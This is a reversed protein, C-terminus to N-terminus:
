CLHEGLSCHVFESLIYSFCSARTTSTERDRGIVLCVAVSIVLLVPLSQYVPMYFAQCVWYCWPSVKDWSCLSFPGLDACTLGFPFGSFKFTILNYLVPEEFVAFPLFLCLSLFKLSLPSNLCSSFGLSNLSSDHFFIFYM